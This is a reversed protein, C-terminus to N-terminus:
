GESLSSLPVNEIASAPLYSLLVGFCCSVMIAGILQLGGM